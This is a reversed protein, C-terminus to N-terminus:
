CTVLLHCIRIKGECWSEEGLYIETDANLILMFSNARQGNDLGSINVCSYTCLFLILM